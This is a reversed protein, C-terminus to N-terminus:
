SGPIPKKQTFPSATHAAHDKELSLQYLIEHRDMIRDWDAATLGLVALRSEDSSGAGKYNIQVYDALVMYSENYRDWEMDNRPTTSMYKSVESYGQQAAPERMANLPAAIDREFDIGAHRTREKYAQDGVPLGENMVNLYNYTLVMDDLIRSRTVLYNPATHALDNQLQVIAEKSLKEMTEHLEDSSIGIAKFFAQSFLGSGYAYNNASRLAKFRESPPNKPDRSEQIHFKAWLVYDEPKDKDLRPPLTSREIKGSTAEPATNIAMDLATGLHPDNIFSFAGAVKYDGIQVPDHVAKYRTDTVVVPEHKDTFNEIVYNSINDANLIGVAGASVIFISTLHGKVWATVPNDPKDFHIRSRSM